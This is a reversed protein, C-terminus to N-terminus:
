NKASSMAKVNSASSSPMINCVLCINETREVLVVIQLGKQYLNNNYNNHGKFNSTM